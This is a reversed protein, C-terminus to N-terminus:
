LVIRVSPTWQCKGINLEPEGKVSSAVTTDMVPYLNTAKPSLNPASRIMQTEQAAAAAAAAAAIYDTQMSQAAVKYIVNTQQAPAPRYAQHTSQYMAKMDTSDTPAYSYNPPTKCRLSVFSSNLFPWANTAFYCDCGFRDGVSCQTSWKSIHAAWERSRNQHGRDSLLKSMSEDPIHSITKVCIPAVNRWFRDHFHASWACCLPRQIRAHASCHASHVTGLIYRIRIVSQHMSTTSPGSSSASQIRPSNVSSDPSM